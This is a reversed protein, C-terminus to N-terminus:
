ELNIDASFGRRKVKCRSLTASPAEPHLFGYETARLRCTSRALTRRRVFGQAAGPKLEAM